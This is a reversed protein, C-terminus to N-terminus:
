NEVITKSLKLKKYFDFWAVGAIAAFLAISWNAISLRVFGFTSNIPEISTLVILLVMALAVAWNLMKNKRLRTVEFTSLTWSRNIFITALNSFVLTVFTLTKVEKDSFGSYLAWGYVSLIVTLNILGQSVAIWIESKGFIDQGLARPKRNMINEDIPESEFVVSCVPDIILEIFAIQIPLLVLPWDSVLVPVLTMGFIPIHVAIIYTLAKRLNNFIGRGRRVGRVIATFDDDTIVIAAAERAVDTGRAGMAIGIDAARLAPADNVGDGTMGVVEGNARFASILQMKQTPIMRAFVNVRQVQKALEALSMRAVDEGTLAGASVDIGIERAVAMATGPFDGTIIVTRIGASSCEAIAQAVGNRVPDHLGVLGLLEFEFGEPTDPLKQNLPFSAKAVALVRQGSATAENVEETLTKTKNPELRCLKAISEPAGKAAVILKDDSKWVHTIAMLSETLPYEAILGSNSRKVNQDAFTKDGLEIFAKDMPDFSDLSSSLVLYEVLEEFDKPLENSDIAHKKGKYILERVQMRNETLTGTKDVCIVSASGLTEIVPARRVLVNNQSMRWAGIALFVTLVVPFEEPLLAMTTSIGVLLGELWDFRTLAYIITVGIAAGIGIIAVVKVLRNIEKQLPTQEIEIDQVSKGILGLQTEGATKLVLALGKGKVTLTGAFISSSGDGGPASLVTQDPKDTAVKRVPVSEGTLTSEDVMFNSSRILIGDAPVRDGEVLVVVDGVVIDKGSVRNQNGDRIVLARPASLERLSSLANETKNEQYVSIGIVVVVAVMLIMGDAPEALIFNLSGAALLLFLMPQKVVDLVRRLFRRSQTQSLENPGHMGLRKAAEASSLGLVDEQDAKKEM